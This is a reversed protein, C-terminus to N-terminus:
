IAEHTFNVPDQIILRAKFQEDEWSTEIQYREPYLLELRKKLNSLGIGGPDKTDSPRASNVVQFDLQESDLVCHINVTLIENILAGHKFANEVFPILLMPPINTKKATNEIHIQSQLSDKFRIQELALYEKIHAVESDFDVLPKGSQYMLYDLLNSLKLIVEPTNESKRVALSYITNLTNFLFHPHIQKKLYSLEQEKFELQRKLFNKEMSQATALRLDGIRMMKVASVAIVVLYVLALVFWFNRGLPPMKDLEVETLIIFCGFISLMIAYSSLIVTYLVYLAFLGFRKSVYYKPILYSSVM